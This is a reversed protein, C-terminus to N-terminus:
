AAVQEGPADPGSDRRTWTVYDVIHEIDDDSLWAAKIKTPYGGEALLYCVGRETPLITRADYGDKAWGRGLILDSSDPTTCRFAARYAFLDRLNAEIVPPNGAGSPRQTAAIVPMGCARGRAVLDRVLANFEKQQDPTGLVSSYVALEDIAVLIVSLPDTKTIKRKRKATLYAYRNNLIKQLRRLAILAAEPDPGIVDDAIPRWPEFEVIKGDFLVLRTNVSMAAHGIITNVFVSKGGGPEGAVLMNRYMLTAYAPHGTETNGLYIPDYMSLMPGVPVSDTVTMSM